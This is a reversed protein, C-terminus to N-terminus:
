LLLCISPLGVNPTVDHTFMNGKRKSKLFVEKYIKNSIVIGEEDFLVPNGIGVVLQSFSILNDKLGKVYSVQNITFNGNTIKGYGKITCKNNNGFKM